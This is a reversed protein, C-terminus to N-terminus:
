HKTHNGIGQFNKTATSAIREITLTGVTKGSVLWTITTEQQKDNINVRLQHVFPADRFSEQIAEFMRWSTASFFLRYNALASTANKWELDRVNGMYPPLEEVKELSNQEGVLGDQTMHFKIKLTNDFNRGDAMVVELCDRPGPTIRKFCRLYVTGGMGRKVMADSADHLLRLVRGESAEGDVLGAERLGLVFDFFNTYVKSDMGIFGQSM